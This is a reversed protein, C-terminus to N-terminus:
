ALITKMLQRFIGTTVHNSYTKDRIQRVWRIGKIANTLFVEDALLVDEVTVATEEVKKGSSKLIEMLHRRMVGAVCGQSLAPTIVKGNSILFINAITSDAINGETNLVLCDNLRNEKANVAAIAYILGGSSKLNSFVDCSKRADPFIDIVLGNANLENVSTDLPWCEITYGPSQNEDYLGGNGRFVTFRVRALDECRNKECLMYIEKQLKEEKLSFITDMKLTNMGAYLREFHFEKLLIRGNMLKMTEFLGDGYRFSRNTVLLAPEEAPQVKGNLNIFNM